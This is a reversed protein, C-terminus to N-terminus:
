DVRSNGVLRALDKGLHLRMGRSPRRKDVEVNQLTGIEAFVEGPTFIRGKSRVQVDRHFEILPIEHLKKGTRRIVDDIIDRALTIAATEQVTMLHGDINQVGPEGPGGRSTLMNLGANLDDEDM